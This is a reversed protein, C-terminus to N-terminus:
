LNAAQRPIVMLLEQSHCGSQTVDVKRSMWKAHRGSQTVDVKRSMWKAHCGSQTVDVKRSMWKALCGSQTVVVKHSVNRTKIRVGREEKWGWGLVFVFILEDQGM